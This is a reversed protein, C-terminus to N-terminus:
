AFWCKTMVLGDMLQAAGNTEWGQVNDRLADIFDNFMPIIAGGEDRVLYAAESYLSKRRAEDLEGRAEVLIEDFKPNNFRTENWDAGSLYSTSYMQDQVPRGNWYSACFPVKNWVESWYGDSPERKIELPIGCAAMSQQMLQAAEMVGPFATDSIQLVIPSGDHGSKAYHERAKDPDYIRQPISDDFLPYAANIPFDNGVGGYGNLVKEVLEERDIAYKLALRLDNNDFPAANCQMPFVYHAKGRTSKVVVGPAQGLLDALKPSVRNIVDVQATQIAADRTTNDNIVIMQISDFHGRSDDWYNSFREFEYGVGPNESTVRYAGTGIGAGPNDFGGNPQIVLQKDAMIYPLDANRTTCKVIFMDGDVRMSEIGRLSGLAGSKTNEDSHRNVTALVDDATLTKGDHFEVGDRIKFAWTTATADPEASVALRFDLSGDQNVDMLKEGYTRTALFPVEMTAAAPDLSNTSEGGVLGM